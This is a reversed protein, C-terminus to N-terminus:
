TRNITKQFSGTGSTGVGPDTDRSTVIVTGNYASGTLGALYDILANITAEGTKTAFIRGNLTGITETTPTNITINLTAAM